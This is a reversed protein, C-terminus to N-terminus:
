FKRGPKFMTKIGTAQQNANLTKQRSTQRMKELEEKLFKNENSLEKSIDRYNKATEILRTKHRRLRMIDKFAKENKKHLGKLYQKRVEALAELKSYEHKGILYGGEFSEMMSYAEENLERWKDFLKEIEEQGM